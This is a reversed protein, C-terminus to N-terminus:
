GLLMKKIKKRGLAHIYESCVVYIFFLMIVWLQVAWFIPSVLEHKIGQFTLSLNNGRIITMHIIHDMIRFIFVLLTYIFMKWTINYILPKHPFANIFSFNNVIILFKGLLLAFVTVTIFGYDQIHDPRFMLGETFNILNLSIVFFLIAPIASIVEEQLQKFMM